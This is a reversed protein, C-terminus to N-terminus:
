LSVELSTYTDPRTASLVRAAYDDGLEREVVNKWSVNRRKTLKLSARFLGAEVEAGAELALKVESEAVTLSSELLGIQRRLEIIRTLHEQSIRDTSDVVLFPIAHPTVSQTAM